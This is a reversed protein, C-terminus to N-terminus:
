KNIIELPSNVSFQYVNEYDLGAVLDLTLKQSNYVSSWLTYCIYGDLDDGDMSVSQLVDMAESETLVGNTEEMASIVKDTREQGFGDPDEAGETLLYNACTMWNVEAEPHNPYLVNMEGDVYEIVATKGSADSIQYHYTCEGFLFDRMDYSKFLEIAEDTTAAKDLCIRIIGTTTINKKETIQFTPNNEIELVGISLGKENIGDVCAYPAIMSLISSAENEPMLNDTYGILGLDAVSISKYGNDPHTWMVMAASETYDFNRAFIYENDPTVANFTTCAFGNNEKGLALNYIAKLVMEVTTNQGNNIMDDLDYDYQYDMLYLHDNVKTVSKLTELRNTYGPLYNGLFLMIASIIATLSKLITALM